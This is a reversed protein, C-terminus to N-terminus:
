RWFVERQALIEFLKKQEEEYSKISNLDRGQKLSRIHRKCDQILLRFNGTYEFGWQLLIEGCHRIKSQIVINCCIEWNDKVVQKCLPERLWANEFKFKRMRPGHVKHILELMSPCHDSPSLELNSLKANTFYYAWQQSVLARDIRVEVWREFGRGSEWTFQYGVLDMDM